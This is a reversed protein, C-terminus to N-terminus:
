SVWGLIHELEMFAAQGLSLLNTMGVLLNTSVTLVIYINIMILIHLFYNM